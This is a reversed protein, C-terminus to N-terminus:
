CYTRWESLYELELFKLLTTSKEVDDTIGAAALQRELISFWLRIKQPMGPPVLFLKNTTIAKNNHAM